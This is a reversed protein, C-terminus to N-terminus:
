INEKLERALKKIGPLRKYNVQDCLQRTENLEILRDKLESITLSPQNKRLRKYLWILDKADRQSDYASMIANQARTLNKIRQKQAENAVVIGAALPAAFALGTGIGVTLALNGAYGTYSAAAALGASTSIAATGATASGNIIKRTRNNSRTKKEYSPLCDAFAQGVLSIFATTLLIKKM